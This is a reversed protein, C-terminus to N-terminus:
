VCDNRHKWLGWPILIILSNLGERLVKPVRSIANSWWASFRAATPQPVIAILGLRQFILTWIQQAFVCSIITHQITEEAQDCLPCAVPYPLGRKALRDATWCRSNVVLSIFIQLAPSGLKELNTELTRVQHPELSSLTIHM